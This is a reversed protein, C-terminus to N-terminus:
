RRPKLVDEPRDAKFSGTMAYVVMNIGSRIAERWASSNRGATVGAWAYAWNNAGAIVTTVQGNGGNIAIPGNRSGPLDQMRYFVAALVSDGDSPALAGLGMDGVRETLTTSFDRAPDPDRIDFLIVGGTRIYDRVKALHAESLQNPSKTVPWYIFPFLPMMGQEIDQPGLAVVGAPEVSTKERLARALNELGLAIVNNIDESPSRVYAIHMNNAYQLMRADRAMNRGSAAPKNQAPAADAASNMFLALLIGAAIKGLAM